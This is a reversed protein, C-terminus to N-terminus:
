GEDCAFCVCNQSEYRISGLRLGVQMARDYVSESFGSGLKRYVDRAISIIQNFESPKTM